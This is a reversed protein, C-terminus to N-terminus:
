IYNNYVLLKLKKFIEEKYKLRKEVSVLIINAKIDFHEINFKNLLFVEKGFNNVFNKLKEDESFCVFPIALNIAVVIGHLRSTVILDVNRFINKYNEVKDWVRIECNKIYKILSLCFKYDEELHFPVFVLKYKESLNKLFSIILKKNFGYKKLVLGITKIDDIKKNNIIEEYSLCIDPCFEVKSNLKKIKNFEIQNRVFIVDTAKILFKLIKKAFKNNVVFETSLICIKNKFIKALLFITFYYFFSLISTQDQFIGGCFILTNSIKLTKIIEKFDLRPIYFLNNNIQLIKKTNYLVFIKKNREQLKLIIKYLADLLWEDGFNNFGFYGCICINKM